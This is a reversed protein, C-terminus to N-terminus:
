RFLRVLPKCAKNLTFALVVTIAVALIVFVGSNMGSDTVMLLIFVGHHLLYAPIHVFVVIVCWFGRLYATDDISMFTDKNKDVKIGFLTSAALALILIVMLAHTLM